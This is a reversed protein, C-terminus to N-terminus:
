GHSLSCQASCPPKSNARPRSHHFSLSRKRSCMIIHTSVQLICTAGTWLSSCHGEPFVPLLGQAHWARATSCLSRQAGWANAAKCPTIAPAMSYLCRVTGPVCKCQVGRSATSAWWHKCLSTNLAKSLESWSLLESPPNSPSLHCQLGLIVTLLHLFPCSVSPMRLLLPLTGLRCLGMAVSSSWQVPPPHKPLSFCGPGPEGQCSPPLPGPFM